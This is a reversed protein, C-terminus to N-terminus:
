VVDYDITIKNTIPHAQCTLVLGDKVEEDTLISNKDMTAEGEVIQALCSSCIGGQCSYPADLGKNLAVELISKKKSMNFSHTEDDLVITLLAEGEPVDAAASLDEVPTTFLEFKIQDDTFGKDKLHDKVRFIMEEPGCLFVQHFDLNQHKNNFIYNVTSLDIRGYLCDDIHQRSYIYHVFFQSQYTKRLQDIQDKFMTQDPSKNGYVLVFKSTKDVGLLSSIMSLVPTIGSGAVFALYNNNLGAKPNLIFRGEPPSVELEDGPKLEQTAFISFAGQAVAKIGIKLVGSLKSFCISYARRLEQGKIEKKITVYQGPIFAFQDSLSSPINFVVSVANGNEKNVEKVSLKYYKSM